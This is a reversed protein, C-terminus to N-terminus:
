LGKLGIRVKDSSKKKQNTTKTTSPDVEEM